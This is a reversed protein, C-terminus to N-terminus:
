GDLANPPLGEQSLFRSVADDWSSYAPDTRKDRFLGTGTLYQGLWATAKQAGDFNLHDGGDMTDKQWDIGIEETMLNMDLYRLGLQEALAAVANHRPYSWNAPSPSSILILEIGKERCQAAMREVASASAKPIPALGDSPAMYASTDAPVVERHLDYGKSATTDGYTVRTFWDERRLNKWRDHYRFVPLYQELRYVADDLRNMRRYLINTELFLTKPSQNELAYSLYEEAQFLQQDVTGCGYGTIGYDRWLKHPLFFSMVESDGLVVTDLTGKPEALIGAAEKEHMQACSKPRVIFGTLVLLVLLIALFLLSRLVPYIKKVM